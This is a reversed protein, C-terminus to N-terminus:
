EKMQEKMDALMQLIQAELLLTLRIIVASGQPSSSGIDKTAVQQNVVPPLITDGVASNTKNKSPVRNHNITQKRSAM